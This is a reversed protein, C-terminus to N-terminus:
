YIGEIQQLTPCVYAHSHIAELLADSAERHYDLVDHFRAYSELEPWPTPGDGCYIGVQGFDQALIERFYRILM